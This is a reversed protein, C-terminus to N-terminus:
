SMFVKGFKGGGESYFILKFNYKLETKKDM